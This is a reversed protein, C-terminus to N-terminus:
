PCCVLSWVPADQKSFELSSHTPHPPPMPMRRRRALSVLREGYGLGAWQQQKEEVGWGCSIPLGGHTCAGSPRVQCPPLRKRRHPSHQAPHGQMCEIRSPVPRDGNLSSPSPAFVCVEEGWLISRAHTHPSQVSHCSVMCGVCVAPLCAPLALCPFPLILARRPLPPPPPPSAIGSKKTSSSPLWTQTYTHLIPHPTHTHTKTHTQPWSSSSPFSSPQKGTGTDTHTHTQASMPVRLGFWPVISAYFHTRLLPKHSPEGGGMGGGDVVRSYMYMYM